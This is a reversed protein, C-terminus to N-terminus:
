ADRRSGDERKGQDGQGLVLRRDLEVMLMQMVAAGGRSRESWGRRGLATQRIEEPQEVSNCMLLRGLSRVDEIRPLVTRPYRLLWIRLEGTSLASLASVRGRKGGFKRRMRVRYWSRQVMLALGFVVYIWAVGSFIYVSASLRERMGAAYSIGLTAGAGVIGMLVTIGIAVGMVIWDVMELARYIRKIGMSPLKMADRVGMRPDQNRLLFVLGYYGVLVLVLGLGFIVSPKGAVGWLYYDAASGGLIMILMVILAVIWGGVVTSITARERELMSVLEGGVSLNNLAKLMPNFVLEGIVSFPRLKLARRYVERGGVGDPLRACLAEIELLTDRRRANAVEDSIRRRVWATLAPTLLLLSPIRQFVARQVELNGHRVAYTLREELLTQPLLAGLELVMRRDYWDGHEWIPGLVNEIPQNLIGSVEATRKTLGEQLLRLLRVLTGPRWDYYCLHGGFEPQITIAAIESSFEEILAPVTLLLPEITSFPQSQLLTVTYERWQLNTLLERPAIHGPTQALFRVFLAEQYRRHAFTFRRDGPRAEPVDCRGIKLDILADTLIDLSTGIAGSDTWVTKIEDLTPALSLAPTEAFLVALQTAGALLQTPSLRYRRRTYDVDRNALYTIHQELLDHDTLPPSNNKKVYRCLLTLFLPNTGLTTNQLLIHRRVIEKQNNDLYTNNILEKQRATTLTLIRFRQWPLEDPGKFERSAVYGRCESMGALFQRIAEAYDPIVSSGSPAHMVAPIEDFSDFLFLWVGTERYEKWQQHLFDATDSDGRRVNDLVFDRIFDATPGTPGAYPLEKLNVYLPVKTDTARSIIGTEALQIALHRLAVSKGSGPDGVLLLTQESSSEIARMLSSVRRLGQSRRGILRHFPSAFYYGDAEVEADLDAFFQDNWNEAKNLREIDGRLVKCFQQRRRLHQLKAASFRDLLGLTKLSRLSKAIGDLITRIVSASFALILAAALALALWGQPTNWDKITKIWDWAKEILAKDM